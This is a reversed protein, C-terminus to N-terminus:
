SPEYRASSRSSRPYSTMPITRRLLVVFKSRM